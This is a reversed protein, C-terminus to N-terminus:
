GLASRVEHSTMILEELYILAAIAYSKLVLGVVSKMLLRRMDEVQARDQTSEIDL